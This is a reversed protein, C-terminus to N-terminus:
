RVSPDALHCRYRVGVHLVCLSQTFLSNFPPASVGVRNLRYTRPTDQADTNKM